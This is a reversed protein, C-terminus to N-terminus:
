GAHITRSRRLGELLFEGMSEVTNGSANLRKAAEEGVLLPRALDTTLATLRAAVTITEGMATHTRRRAPGFSGILASGTELGIGLALPELGPPAIEPFLPQTEVLLERAAALAAQVHRPVHNASWVAMVADGSFEEIVGGSREVIEVAASYFLHLLGATEEPPRGECYASFNRIDAFFVTIERKEAEIVGRVENLAIDRAVSVPLYASLNNFLRQREFRVAAHEVAALGLSTLMLFFGASSWGLWRGAQTLVLGHLCALGLALAIGVVPLLVVVPWRRAPVGNLSRGGLTAMAILLGAGALALLANIIWVGRPAYPLRADLMASIFQLHVEVGAVAGGLPTPVADGLGFATGGVLVWAGKLIDAPARGALIDRASISILASRPLAYPVRLDGDAQLPLSVGPVGPVRLIWDPDGFRWGAEITVSDNGVGTAQRLAALGLAPYLRGNHCIVAPMARVAGDADIRPTIHGVLPGSVASKAGLLSAANGIYGAAPLLLPQSNGDQVACDPGSLAGSVMGAAAPTSPSFVQAIVSPHRQLAAAFDADGVSEDPFAMDFIVPGAGVAHLADLLKAMRQRPWPWPGIESLSAEDIDVIVVRREAPEGRIEASKAQWRWAQDGVAEDLGGFFVPRLTTLGLVVGLAVLVALLRARWRRRALVEAAAKVPPTVNM